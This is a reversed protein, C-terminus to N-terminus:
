YPQAAVMVADKWFLARMSWCVARGQEGAHGALIPSCTAAYKFPFETLLATWFANVLEPM